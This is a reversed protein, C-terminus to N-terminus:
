EIELNPVHEGFDIGIISKNKLGLQTRLLKYVGNRKLIHGNECSKMRLITQLSINPCLQALKAYM